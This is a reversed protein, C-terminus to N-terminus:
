LGKSDREIASPETPLSIVFRTFKGPESEIQIEGGHDKIIGYSVSLGLGTGEGIDKTTFFPDFVRHINESSIGAGNDEFTICLSNRGNAPTNLSTGPKRVEASIRITGGPQLADLSNLFLNIFVSQLLDADAQITPLGNVPQIEVKIGREHIKHDLFNRVNSLLLALDVPRFVPEQRRSFELLQRVIGAIRDIQSRIIQLNENLEAQSRPRRLLYEARGGIINLPTGIEHALGAALEGVSALRETHRLEQELKLKEDQELVLRSYSGQLEESMINFENALSAVEDHGRTEIRQQWHGQGMERIRSILHDIPRTINRRVIILILFSLIVALILTTAIIRNRREQISAMLRSGQRAFVFAGATQGRTSFIPEIRYYILVSQNRIYGETGKATRLVPGPDLKLIPAPDLESFETDSRLSASVIVRQAEPNYVILGHINGQPGVADVFNQTAKLDHLDGYFNRLGVQIARTLGRMGVRIERGINEQDQRVSFYGHIMMTVVITTVLCIILKTGLKM